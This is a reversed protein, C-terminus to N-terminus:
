PYSVECYLLVHAIGIYSWSTADVGCLRTKNDGLLHNRVCLPPLLGDSGHLALTIWAMYFYWTALRYFCVTALIENHSTGIVIIVNHM